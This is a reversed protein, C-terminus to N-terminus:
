HSDSQYGYHIYVVCDLESPRPLHHLLTWCNFLLTWCNFLLTWCNFSLTRCCSTWASGRLPLTYSLMMRTSRHRADAALLRWWLFGDPVVKIKSGTVVIDLIMLTLGKHAHALALDAIPIKQTVVIDIRICTKYISFNRFGM